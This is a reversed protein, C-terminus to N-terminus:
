TEDPFGAVSTFQARQPRLEGTLGRACREPPGRCISIVIRRSEDKYQM